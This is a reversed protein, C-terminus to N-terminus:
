TRKKFRFKLEDESDSEPEKVAFIKQKKVSGGRAIAPASRKGNRAALKNGNQEPQTTKDMLRTTRPAEVDVVAPGGNVALEAPAEEPQSRATAFPQSQSQSTREKEKRKRKSKEGELWYEEGIGFDKKKVEELPVIVTQGRRPQDGEGRRRFKKFNKRGNWRPDWRDNDNGNANRRQPPETRELLEMEEIVALNKMEEVSLGNLTERLSEEDRRAVEDEAERREKVVEQININKRPNAKRVPEVGLKQPRGFLPESSVGRIQANKEEEIRRRKMAAAAPLLSEVMDDENEDSAPSLPRKRPFNHRTIPGDVPQSDMEM